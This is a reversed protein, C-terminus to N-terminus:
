WLLMGITCFLGNYNPIGPTHSSIHQYGFYITSAPRYNTSLGLGVKWVSHNWDADGVSAEVSAKAALTAHTDIAVIDAGVGGGLLWGTALYEKTDTLRLEDTGVIGYIRFSGLKAGLEASVEYPQMSKSKNGFDFNVQLHTLDFFSKKAVQANAGAAMLALAAIMLIKRM